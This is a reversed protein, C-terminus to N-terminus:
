RDGGLRARPPPDPPDSSWDGHKGLLHKIWQAREGMGTKPTRPCPKIYVMNAVFEGNLWLDKFM